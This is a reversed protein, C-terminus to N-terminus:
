CHESLQGWFRPFTYALPANCKQKMSSTEVTTKGSVYGHTVYLRFMSCHNDVFSSPEVKSFAAAFKQLTAFRTFGQRMCCYSM